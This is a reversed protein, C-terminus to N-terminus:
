DMRIIELDPYQRLDIYQKNCYITPRSLMEEHIEAIRGVMDNNLCVRRDVYSYAIKSLITKTNKGFKHFGEKEFIGIAQFPPKAARHARPHTM